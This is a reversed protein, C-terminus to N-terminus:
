SEEGAPPHALADAIATMNGAHYYWSTGLAMNITAMNGVHYVM